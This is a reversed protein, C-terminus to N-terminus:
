IKMINIVYNESTAEDVHLKFYDITKIEIGTTVEKPINVVTYKDIAIFVKSYYKSTADGLEIILPM